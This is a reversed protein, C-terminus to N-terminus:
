APTALLQWFLQSAGIRVLDKNLWAEGLLTKVQNLYFQAQDITRIGGSIKIGVRKQTEQYHAAIAQCIVAVAQPTAGIPVKGTSTKIFDAGYRCLLTAILQVDNLDTFAGTEVIFKLIGVHNERVANIFNILSNEERHQLFAQYPLVVDMEQAGLEHASHMQRLVDQISATGEPFNIVTVLSTTKDVLLNQATSLYKPYVCLGAPEVECAQVAELLKPLHAADKELYTVDLYRLM